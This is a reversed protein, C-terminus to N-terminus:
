KRMIAIKGPGTFFLALSAGLMSLAFEFGGPAILGKEWHVKRIATVMDIVLLLAALRTFLGFILALGGFFEVAGAVPGMLEPVPIGLSRLFETFGARGTKMSEVFGSGLYREAKPHVPSEPGGFLKPYGHAIFLGGVVLRLILLGLSVLKMKKM